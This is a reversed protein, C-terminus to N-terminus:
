RRRRRSSRRRGATGDRGPRPRRAQGRVRHGRVWLPRRPRSEPRVPWSFSRTAPLQGQADPLHDLAGPLSALGFGRTAFGSWFWLRHVCSCRLSGHLARWGNWSWAQQRPFWNDGSDQPASRSRRRLRRSGPPAQVQCPHSAPRSGNGREQGAPLPNGPRRCRDPVCVAVAAGAVVLARRPRTRWSARRARLRRMLSVKVSPQAGVGVACGTYRRLDRVPPPRVPFPVSALAAPEGSCRSKPM